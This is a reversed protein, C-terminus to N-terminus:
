KFNKTMKITELHGEFKSWFCSSGRIVLQRIEAFAIPFRGRIQRAQMAETSIVNLCALESFHYCEQNLFNYDACNLYPNKKKFFLFYFGMHFWALSEDTQM